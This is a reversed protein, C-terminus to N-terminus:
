KKNEGLKRCRNLLDVREYKLSQVEAILKTNESILKTNEEKTLDLRIRIDEM